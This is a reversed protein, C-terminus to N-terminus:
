FWHWLMLGAIIMLTVMIWLLANHIENLIIRMDEAM